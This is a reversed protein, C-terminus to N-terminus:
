LFHTYSLLCQIKLVYRLKRKFLILLMQTIRKGSISWAYVYQKEKEISFSLSLYFKNDYCCRNEVISLLSSNLFKCKQVVELLTKDYRFWQDRTALRALYQLQFQSGLVHDASCPFKCSVPDCLTGSPLLVTFFGAPCEHFFLM